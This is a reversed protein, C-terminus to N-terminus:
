GGRSGEPRRGEPYIRDRSVRCFKALIKQPNILAMNIESVTRPKLIFTNRM